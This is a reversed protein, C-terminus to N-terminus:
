IDFPQAEPTLILVPIKRGTQQQYHVYYANQGSVLTWLRNYEAPSAQSARVRILEDKVQITTAPQHM